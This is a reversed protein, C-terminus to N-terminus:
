QGKVVTCYEGWIGLVNYSTYDMTAIDKIQADRKAAGVSADGWAVLGFISNMCAKGEKAPSVNNNAAVGATGNTFLAGTPVYSACGGLVLATAGIALLSKM